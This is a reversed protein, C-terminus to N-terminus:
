EGVGVGMVKFMTLKFADAPVKVSTISSEVHDKTDLSGSNSILACFGTQKEPRMM